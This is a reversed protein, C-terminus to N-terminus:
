SGAVVVVVVSLVVALTEVMATVSPVSGDDVVAMAVSVSSAVSVVMIEVGEVEAGVVSPGGTPEVSSTVEM